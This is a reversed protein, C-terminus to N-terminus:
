VSMSHANNYCLFYQNEKSLLSSGIDAVTVFLLTHHDSYYPLRRLRLSAQLQKQRKM